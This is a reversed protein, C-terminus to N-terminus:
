KKALEIKLAEHPLIKSNSGKELNDWDALFKHRVAPSMAEVNLLVHRLYPQNRFIELLHEADADGFGSNQPAPSIVELLVSGWNYSVGM